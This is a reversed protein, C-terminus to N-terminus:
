FPEYRVRGYEFEMFFLKWGQSPPGWNHFPDWAIERQRRIKSVIKSKWLEGYRKIWLQEWIFESSLLQLFHRSTVSLSGIDVTHLMGMIIILVDRNQVLFEVNSKRKNLSIFDLDETTHNMWAVRMRDSMDNM